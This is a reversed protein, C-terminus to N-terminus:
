FKKESFKEDQLISCVGEESIKESFNRGKCSSLYIGDFLFNKEFFFFIM